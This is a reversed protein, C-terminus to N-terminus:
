ICDSDVGTLPVEIFDNSGDFYYASNEEGFRDATLTAGRVIGNNANSTGDNANGSFTYNAVLGETLIESVDIENGGVKFDKSGATGQMVLGVTVDRGSVTSLTATLNSTGGAESITDESVSLTVGPMDDDDEIALLIKQDVTELAYTVSAVEIRVTDKDDEDLDDDKITLSTTGTSSGASVTITGSSLTYDEDATASGATSLTIVVDDSYIRDLTATITANASGEAFRLDFESKPEVESM